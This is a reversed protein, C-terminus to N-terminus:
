GGPEALPAGPEALSRSPEAVPVAASSLSQLAKFFSSKANSSILV